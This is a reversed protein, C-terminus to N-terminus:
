PLNSDEAAVPLFPCFESPATAVSARCVRLLAMVPAIYAQRGSMLAPESVPVPVLGAYQCAFFTRHFNADTEAIIAVRAGRDLRLSLLRRALSVAQERLDAYSLVASLEGRSGYFNCGTQGLAAYDLAERLTSFDAARFAVTNETPTPKLGTGHEGSRRLSGGDSGIGFPPVNM